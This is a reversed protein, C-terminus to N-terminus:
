VGFAMKVLKKSTLKFEIIDECRDCLQPTLPYPNGNVFLNMTGIIKFGENIIIEEDKFKFSEKNDTLGQLFRFCDMTLTNIEDLLIVQGHEMAYRLPSPILNGKGDKLKFDEILDSPMMSSNCIICNGNAEKMAKTTKGGGPIGEYILLRNNIKQGNLKFSAFREVLKKFEDSKVKNMAIEYEGCCLRLRQIFYEKAENLGEQCKYAFVNVNRISPEFEMDKCFEMYAQVTNEMFEIEDATYDIKPYTPKPKRVIPEKVEAVSNQIEPAKAYNVIPAVPTAGTTTRTVKANPRLALLNNLVEDYPLHAKDLRTLEVCLKFEDGYDIIEWNGFVNTRISGDKQRHIFTAGGRTTELGNIKM